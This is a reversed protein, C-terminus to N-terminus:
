AVLRPGHDRGADRGGVFWSPILKTDADIATWTWVDGMGATDWNLRM